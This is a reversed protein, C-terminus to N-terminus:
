GSYATLHEYDLKIPGEMSAEMSAEDVILRWRCIEMSIMSECIM